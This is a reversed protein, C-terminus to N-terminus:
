YLVTNSGLGVKAGLPGALARLLPRAQLIVALRTVWSSCTEVLKNARRGPLPISINTAATCSEARRIGQLIGQKCPIQSSIPAILVADGTHSDHEFWSM